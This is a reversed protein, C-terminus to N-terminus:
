RPPSHEGIRSSILSIFLPGTLVSTLLKGVCDATLRLMLTSWIKANETNSRIWCHQIRKENCDSIM